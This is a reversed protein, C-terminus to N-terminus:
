CWEELQRGGLTYANGGQEHKCGRGSEGREQCPQLLLSYPLHYRGEDDLEHHLAIDVLVEVADDTVAYDVKKDTGVHADAMEATMMSYEGDGKDYADNTCSTLVTVCVCLSLLLFRAM